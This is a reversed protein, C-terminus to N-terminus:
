LSENTTFLSRAHIYFFEIMASKLDKWLIQQLSKFFRYSDWHSYNIDQSLNRRNEAKIYTLLSVAQAVTAPPFTNNRCM